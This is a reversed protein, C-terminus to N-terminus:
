DTMESTAVQSSSQARRALEASFTNLVDSCDQPDIMVDILAPAKRAAAADFADVFEGVTHGRRSTYRGRM